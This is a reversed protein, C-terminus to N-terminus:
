LLNSLPYGVVRDLIRRAEQARVRDMDIKGPHALAHQVATRTIENFPIRFPKADPLSLADESHWAIAEGEGDPHTAGCVQGAQGAERKRQALTDKPSPRRRAGKGEERGDEGVHTPGWGADINVGAVAEGKRRRKPLDRVHGYSARVVFNGGLYKEITKAKA